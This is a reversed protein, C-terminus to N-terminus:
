SQGIRFLLVRRFLGDGALRIRDESRSLKRFKGPVKKNLNLNTTFNKAIIMDNIKELSMRRITSFRSERLTSCDNLFELIQM